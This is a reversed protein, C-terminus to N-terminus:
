KIIKLIKLGEIIHESKILNMCPSYLMSNKRAANCSGGGHQFCAKFKSKKGYYCNSMADIGIANKYHKLRLSSYFPGYLGILPTDLGGAIHLLGSDPGIVVDAFKVLSMTLLLDNSNDKAWNIVNTLGAQEKLAKVLFNIDKIQSKSGVVYFDSKNSKLKAILNALLDPHISRIPVTTAFGIVINLKDKNLLKKIVEDKEPNTKLYPLYTRPKLYFKEAHLEYANIQEAEINQEILGEFNVYYDYELLIDLELPLSILKNIYDIETFVASYRTDCCITLEINDKYIDKLEQLSPIQFILDGIGGSRFTILKKGHLNEGNYKKSEVRKDKYFNENKLINKEFGGEKIKFVLFDSVVYEKNPYITTECGDNDYISLQREINIIRM